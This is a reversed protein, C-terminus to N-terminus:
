AAGLLPISKLATRRSARARIQDDGADPHGGLLRTVNATAGLRAMAVHHKNLHMRWRLFRFLAAENNAQSQRDGDGVGFARVAVRGRVQGVVVGDKFLPAAFPLMPSLPTPDDAGAEPAM